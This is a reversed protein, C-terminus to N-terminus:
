PRQRSTFIVQLFPSGVPQPIELLLNKPPKKLELTSTQKYSEGREKVCTQRPTPGV